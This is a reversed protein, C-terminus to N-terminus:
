QKIDIRIISGASYVTVNGGEIKKAKGSKVMEYAEKITDWM